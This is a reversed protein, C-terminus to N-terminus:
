IRYFQNLVNNYAGHGQKKKLFVKLFNGTQQNHGNLNTSGGEM